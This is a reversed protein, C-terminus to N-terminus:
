PLALADSLLEPQREEGAAAGMESTLRMSPGALLEGVSDSM